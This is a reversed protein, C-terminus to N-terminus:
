AHGAGTPALVFVETAAGHEPSYGPVHATVRRATCSEIESILREAIRRQVVSRSRRVLDVADLALLTREHPTDTGAIVCVVVDHSILTIVRDPGRGLHAKYLRSVAESIERQPTIARDSTAGDRGPRCVRASRDADTQARERRGATARPAATM